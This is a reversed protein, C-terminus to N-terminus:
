EVRSRSRHRRRTLLVVLVLVAGVVPLLLNLKRVAEHARDAAAQAQEAAALVKGVDDLAAQARAYQAEAEALKAASDVM